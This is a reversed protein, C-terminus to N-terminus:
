VCGIDTLKHGKMLMKMAETTTARLTEESLCQVSGKGNVLLANVCYADYGSDKEAQWVEESTLARWDSLMIPQTSKEAEHMLVRDFPDDSIKDFPRKTEHSPHIYIPGFMGDEIQGRRHAHYFYSGYQTATWRYVFYDGSEIPRQSLGPVGDSWPTGQQEIGTDNTLGM